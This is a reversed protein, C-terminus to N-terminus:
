VIRSINNEKVIHIKPVLPHSFEHAVLFTNTNEEKQLIKILKEKGKLDLVGMVEDLFLFNLQVGGIKSLLKRIALLTFNYIIFDLGFRM